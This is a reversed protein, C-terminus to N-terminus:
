RMRSSRWCLRRPSGTVFMLLSGISEGGTALQSIAGVVPSASRMNACAPSVTSRRGGSGENSASAGTDRMYSRGGLFGPPLQPRPCSSRAPQGFILRFRHSTPRFQSASTFSLDLQLCDPFMFVRYISPGVALDFLEIGALDEVTSTWDDLVKGVGAADDVAFTLDIDSWRDGEGLALSGVEAAAVVRRDERAMELVRDRLEDRAGISFMHRRREHMRRATTSDGVASM